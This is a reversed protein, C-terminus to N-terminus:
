VTFYVMLDMKCIFGIAVVSNIGKKWSKKRKASYGTKVPYSAITQINMKVDDNIFFM